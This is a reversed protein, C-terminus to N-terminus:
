QQSSSIVGHGHAEGSRSRQKLRQLFYIILHPLLPPFKDGECSQVEAGRSLEATQVMQHPMLHIVHAKQLFFFFKLGFCRFKRSTAPQPIFWYDQGWVRWTQCILRLGLQWRLCCANWGALTLAAIHTSSPILSSPPNEHLCTLSWATCGVSQYLQLFM